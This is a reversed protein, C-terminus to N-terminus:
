RGDKSAASASTDFSVDFTITPTTPQCAFCCLALLLATLNKMTATKTAELYSYEVFNKKAMNELAVGTPNTTNLDM